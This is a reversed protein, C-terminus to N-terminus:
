LIIRDLYMTLMYISKLHLIRYLAIKYYQAKNQAKFRIERYGHHGTVENGTILNNDKPAFFSKRFRVILAM